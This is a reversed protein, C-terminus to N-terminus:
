VFCCVFQVMTAGQVCNLSYKTRFQHQACLGSSLVNCSCRKWWKGFKRAKSSRMMWTNGCISSYIKTKVASFSVPCKSIRQPFLVHTRSSCILLYIFFYCCGDEALGLGHSSMGKLRDVIFDTAIFFARM